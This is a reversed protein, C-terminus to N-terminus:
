SGLTLRVINSLSANPFLACPTATTGLLTFQVDLVGGVLAPNCPITLTLGATGGFIPAGQTILFPAWQCSGCVLPAQPFTVNLLALTAATDINTTAVVLGGNGIQPAGMLAPTITGGGGCGGGLDVATGGGGLVSVYQAKVDTDASGFSTADDWLVLGVTNYLAGSSSANLSVCPTGPRNLVAIQTESECVSCDAPNLGVVALPYSFVGSKTYAVFAKGARMSVSFLPHDQISLGEILVKTPGVTVSGASARVSTAHLRQLDFLTGPYLQSTVAVWESAYGNGGDIEVDIEAEPSNFVTQIPAVPVGDRDLVVVHADGQASILSDSTYAVAYLGNPGATRSISPTNLDLNSFAQNAISFAAGFSPGATASPTLAIGQIGILARDWVVLMRNFGSGLAEGGIDARQFAGPTTSTAVAVVPQEAGTGPHITEVLVQSPTVSEQTWTVVFRAVGNATAIRPRGNLTGAVSDLFITGGEVALTSGDLRLGRVQASTASLVRRWVVMYNFNVEEFAADPQEDADISTSVGFNAGILPDLTVPWVAEALFEGPASYVLQGGELRVDGQASKGAADLVTLRGVDVGGFASAFRHTGDSMREGLGAVSGGLDIHLELDGAGLPAGVVLSHELGERRVEFRERVGPAREFVATLGDIKPADPLLELRAGGQELAVAEFSLEHTFPAQRGLAALFRAGREDFLAEYSRGGGILGGEHHPALGVADSIAVSAGVRALAEASARSSPSASPDQIAALAATAALLLPSM